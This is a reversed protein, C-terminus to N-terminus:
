FKAIGATFFVNTNNTFNFQWYNLTSAGSNNVTIAMRHDYGSLWATANGCVILIICIGIIVSRTMIFRWINHFSKRIIMINGNVCDMEVRNEAYRITILCKEFITIGKTSCNLGKIKTIRM